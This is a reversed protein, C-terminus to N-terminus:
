QYGGSAYSPRKLGSFEFSEFLKYVLEPVGEKADIGLAKVVDLTIPTEAALYGGALFEAVKRTQDDGLKDRLLWRVFDKANQTLMAGVDSMVLTKDSIANIPKTKSVAM